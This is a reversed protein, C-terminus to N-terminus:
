GAREDDEDHWGPRLAVIERYVDRYSPDGREAGVTGVAMEPGHRM